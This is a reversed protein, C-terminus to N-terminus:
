DIEVNSAQINRIRAQLARARLLGGSRVRINKAGLWSLEFTGNTVVELATFPGDGNPLVLASSVHVTLTLDGPAQLLLLSSTAVLESDAVSTTIAQLTPRGLTSSLTLTPPSQALIYYWKYLTM